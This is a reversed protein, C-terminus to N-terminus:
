SVRDKLWEIATEEDQEIAMEVAQKAYELLQKSQKRLAFSEQVKAAIEKQIGEDIMPLPMSLLEDKSIATLITGSCRQKLLAQIPESKFLVLLTESNIVESDLVYFGTSCIAKDFEETILACSQLSGEVSSVIVQGAKVLRRARTPLNEGKQLEVDNIEGYIGVNALEIYQYAKMNAPIYNEDYLNCLSSVTEKTNLANTFDKYRPQYYEADLRGTAMFSNSLSQVVISDKKIKICNLRIAEAFSEEAKSYEKLADTRLKHAKKYCTKIIEQLEKKLLPIEIAKVEEPNVNTQNISQRARRRIEQVGCSTNLFAALYESYITNNDPIFRVLYSAFTQPIGSSYYVGTRGVLDFSNTRNFLVDGDNLKVKIFEDNTLEVYKNTTIDCLSNHIENMRFIQYGIGDANMNKSVGYQSSILYAGIPSYTLKSNRSISETYFQSDIRFDKNNKTETYYHESCDLGDM